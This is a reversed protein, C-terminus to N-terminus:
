GQSVNFDILNLKVANKRKLAILMVIAHYLFPCGNVCFARHKDVALKLCSSYTAHYEKTYFCPLYAMLTCIDM